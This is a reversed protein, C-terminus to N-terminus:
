KPKSKAFKDGGQKPNANHRGVKCTKIKLFDDFDYRTEGCCAWGKKREHFIPPGPHYNCKEDGNTSETFTVGCGVNRCTQTTDPDIQEVPKVAQLPRVKVPPVYNAQAEASGAHDACFFGSVCRNCNEKSPKEPEGETKAADTSVGGPAKETGLKTPGHGAPGPNAAVFKPPKWQTHRGYACGEIDMFLGFDHSKQGCCTWTKNGEHFLPAGPHHRCSNPPNTNLADRPDYLADCGIRQCTYQGDQRTPPPLPTPELETEMQDTLSAVAPKEGGSAFYEKVQELSWSESEEVSPETVLPHADCLLDILNLRRALDKADDAMRSPSSLHCTNALFGNKSSCRM